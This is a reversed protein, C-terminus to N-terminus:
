GLRNVIWAAAQTAVDPAETALFHDADAIEHCELDTWGATIERAQAAPTFQDNTPSFLAVPCAPQQPTDLMALPPAILVTGGLDSDDVGLAIMAGFSYGVAFTPLGPLRERVEALAAVADLREGRGDDFESRFDFRLSAVGGEALSDHLAQVVHNFRNGGFQPHPHCVIAAGHASEPLALDGVLSVGDSSEFHVTTAAISM